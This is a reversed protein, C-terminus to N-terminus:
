LLSAADEDVVITVDPHRQLISAPCDTSVEGKVTQYIAEAKNKGSAILLIRKADMVNKIGMTISQTPVKSMDNDFFRANDQITSDLLDVVQTVSDFPTGPENFALHGNSGIGLLQLDIKYKSLLENYADCNAQMDEGQVSPLNVNEKKIDIHNFLNQHMFTYYSQPHEQELGVYEDLNFTTIEAYSTGNEQHDKIMRQYLGIPSSGTALGLVAKPNNKVVDLMIEAARDSVEEYDKCTIVKM